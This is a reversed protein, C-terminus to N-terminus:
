FIQIADAVVEDRILPHLGNRPMIDVPRGVIGPAIERLSMFQRLGFRASDYDYFLDIDSEEDAEGRALSGFLYIHSVGQAQFEAEHARLSRIVTDRDLRTGAM